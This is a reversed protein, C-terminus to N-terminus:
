GTPLGGALSCLLSGLVGGTPDATITLHLPDNGTAGGGLHVMLGLLNLDLPGLTLDLVSCVAAAAQQTTRAATQLPLTLTPGATALGSSKAAKTLRAATKSLGTPTTGTGGALGCLLSGLLGGNSDARITLVVQNLDVILGLLALHLPGLTLSLVDCIRTAAQMSRMSTIRAKHIRLVNAAFPKATSYAGQDSQYTTLTQGIAVLHKGRAAFKTVAFRIQVSDNSQAAAARTTEGAAPTVTAALSAVVLAALLGLAGALRSGRM